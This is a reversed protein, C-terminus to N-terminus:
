QPTFWYRGNFKSSGWLDSLCREPPKPPPAGRSSAPTPETPPGVGLSYECPTGRFLRLRTPLPVVHVPPELLLLWPLGPAQRKVACGLPPILCECKRNLTQIKLIGPAPDWGEPPALAGGGGFRRPPRRRPAGSERGGWFVHQPERYRCQMRRTASITKTRVLAGYSM